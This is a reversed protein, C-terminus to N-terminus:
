STPRLVHQSCQCHGTRRVVKIMGEVHWWSDLSVDSGEGVACAFMTAGQM